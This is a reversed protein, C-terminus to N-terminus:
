TKPIELNGGAGAECARSWAMAGVTSVAALLIGKKRRLLNLICLRDRDPLDGVSDMLVQFREFKVALWPTSEPDANAHLHGARALM